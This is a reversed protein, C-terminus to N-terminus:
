PFQAASLAYGVGVIILASRHTRWDPGGCILRGTSRAGTVSLM